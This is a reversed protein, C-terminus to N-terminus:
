PPPPSLPIEVHIGIKEPTSSLVYLRKLYEGLPVDVVQQNSTSAHRFIFGRPTRFFFGLHRINLDTGIEKEFNHTKDVIEIIAGSPIRALLAENLQPHEGKLVLMETLPIYTTFAMSRRESRAHLHMQWLLDRVTQDSPPSLLKLTKESHWQYWEPKNILATAIQYKDSLRKTIDRLFGQKENSLNWDLETFHKRNFYSVRKNYYQLRKLTTMFSAENTGYALALVTNVFTMCDFADTRYFPEKDFVGEEGEGLAGRLYKVGIFYASAREIRNNLRPTQKLIRQYILRITEKYQSIDYRPILTPTECQSSQLPVILCFFILALKSWRLWDKDLWKLCASEQQL